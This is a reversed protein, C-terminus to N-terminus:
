DRCLQWSSRKTYRCLSITPNKQALSDSDVQMDYRVWEHSCRLNYGRESGRAITRFSEDPQKFCAHVHEAQINRVARLFIMRPADLRNAADGRFGAQM